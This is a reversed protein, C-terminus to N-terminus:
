DTDLRALPYMNVPTADERPLAPGFSRLKFFFSMAIAIPSSQLSLSQPGGGGPLADGGHVHVWIPTLNQATQRPWTKLCPRPPIHLLDDTAPSPQVRILDCDPTLCKALGCAGWQAMQEKQHSVSPSDSASPKDFAKVIRMWYYLSYFVLEEPQPSPLGSASLYSRQFAEQLQAIESHTLSYLNGMGETNFYVTLYDFWPSALPKGGEGVSYHLTQLDIMSLVDNEEDYLWNGLHPDLHAYTHCRAVESRKQQLTRFLTIFEEKPMPILWPRREAVALFQALRDEEKQVFYPAEECSIEVKAGHLEALSSGIASLAREAAAFAARREQCGQAKGVRQFLDTIPDGPLYEYALLSYRGEPVSARGIAALSPVRAGKLSLHALLDFASLECALRQEEQYAKVVYRNLGQRNKVFFIRDIALGDNIDLAKGQKTVVLGRVRVQQEIMRSVCESLGAKRTTDPLSTSLKSLTAPDDLHGRTALSISTARELPGAGFPSWSFCLLLAGVVLLTTIKRM